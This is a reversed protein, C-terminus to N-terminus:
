PPQLLRVLQRNAAFKFIGSGAVAAVVITIATLYRHPPATLFTNLAVGLIGGAAISVAIGNMYAANLETIKNFVIIAHARECEASTKVSPAWELGRSHSELAILATSVRNVAEQDNALQARVLMQVLDDRTLVPCRTPDAEETTM